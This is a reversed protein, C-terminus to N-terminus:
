HVDGNTRCTDAKQSHHIILVMSGSEYRIYRKCKLKPPLLKPNM